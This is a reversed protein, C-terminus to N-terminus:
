LILFYLKFNFFIFNLAKLIFQFILYSLLLFLNLVLTILNIFVIFLYDEKFFCSNLNFILLIMLFYFYLVHFLM